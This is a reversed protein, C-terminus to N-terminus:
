SPLCRMICVSRWGLITTSKIFTFVQIISNTYHTSSYFFRMLFQESLTSNIKLELNKLRSISTKTHHKRFTMFNLETFTFIYNYLLPRLRDILCKELGDLM